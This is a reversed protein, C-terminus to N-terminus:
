IGNSRYASLEIASHCIVFGTISSLVVSIASVGSM